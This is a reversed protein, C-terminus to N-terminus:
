TIPHIRGVQNPSLRYYCLIEPTIFMKCGGAIAKQWMSKDEYGLQDEAYYRYKEWFSKTFCASSHCIVNHEISLETAINKDHFVMDRVIVDEGNVEEIHTFNSSVLDYGQNIAELQIRFRHFNYFDDLNINMITSCGHAFAVDLIYNMAPIHSEMPNHIFESGEWIQTRTESYCLEFVRFDSHTQNRISDLCKDIWEQRYIKTLDRHYLIVGIM